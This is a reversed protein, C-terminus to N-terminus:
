ESKSTTTRSILSRGIAVTVCPLSVNPAERLVTVPDAPSVLSVQNPSAAGENAHKASRLGSKTEEETKTQLLSRLNTHVTYSQVRPPSKIDDLSPGQIWQVSRPSYM